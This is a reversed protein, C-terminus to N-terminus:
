FLRQREQNRMMTGYSSVVSAGTDVKVLISGGAKEFGDTHDLLLHLAAVKTQARRKSKSTSPLSARIATAIATGYEM